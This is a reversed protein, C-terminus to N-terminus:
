RTAAAVDAPMALRTPQGRGRLTVSEDLRWRDAEDPRARSVIAESALLRRPKSKALETLRAAENVPDGIVTYEFRDEAGVNGAVVRGASVGIGAELGPLEDALRRQIERAARLACGAFDDQALPVGFVCLAADGEFKNVWGGHSRVAEVVIRFFDNLVEVVESPPRDAAFSTSGVIDVFLAAAEREEGGLGVGRELARRAVDEGVHRGFLDSLHERERLGEVMRNFGAQVFGVESADNVAVEARLDGREVKALASRLAELPDAVSRAVAATAALGVALAILALGVAAVALETADVEGGALRVAGIVAIGFLPIGTTVVWVVVARTAVGPVHYDQPPAGELARAVADRMVREGLLYAIAVTIVGGLAVTAGAAAALTASTFANVAAVLAVGGAWPVALIRLSYLPYRLTFEREEETPPREARVWRRIREGSAIGFKTTIPAAVLLYGGVVAANLLLRGTDSKLVDPLPIVFTAVLFVFVAGITNSAVMAITFRRATRESLERGSLRM